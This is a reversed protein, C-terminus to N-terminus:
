FELTGRVVNTLIALAFMLVWMSPFYLLGRLVAYRRFRRILVLFGVTIAIFGAAISVFPSRVFLGFTFNLLVMLPFPMLASVAVVQLGALRDTFALM